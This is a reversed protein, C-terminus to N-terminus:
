LENDDEEKVNSTYKEEIEKRKSEDEMYEIAEDISSKLKLLSMYNLVFSCKEEGNSVILKALQELSNKDTGLEIAIYRKRTYNKEYNKDNTKHLM